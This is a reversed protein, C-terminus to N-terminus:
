TIASEEEGEGFAEIESFGAKTFLPFRTIACTQFDDVLNIYGFKTVFLIQIKM